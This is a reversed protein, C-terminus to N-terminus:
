QQALVAVVSLGTQAELTQQAGCAAWRGQPGDAGETEAVLPSLEALLTSGVLSLKVDQRLVLPFLTSGVLPSPPQTDFAHGRHSRLTLLQEVFKKNQNFTLTSQGSHKPQSYGPVKM